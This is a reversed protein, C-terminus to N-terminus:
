KKGAAKGGKKNGQTNPANSPKDNKKGGSTSAKPANDAHSGGAVAVKGGAPATPKPPEPPNHPTPLFGLWKPESITGCMGQPHCLCGCTGCKFPKKHAVIEGVLDNDPTLGAVLERWRVAHKELRSPPPIYLNFLNVDFRGEKICIYEVFTGNKIAELDGDLEDVFDKITDSKELADIVVERVTDAQERELSPAHFTCAFDSDIDENPFGLVCGNSTSWTCVDVFHDIQEQTGSVFAGPPPAEGPNAPIPLIITPPRQGPYAKSWIGKIIAVMAEPGAPTSGAQESVVFAGPKKYDFIANRQRPHWKRTISRRDTAEPRAINRLAHVVIPGSDPNLHKAGRKPPQFSPPLIAPVLFDEREASYARGRDNTNNARRFGDAGLEIGSGTDPADGENGPDVGWFEPSAKRARAKGKLAGHAGKCFGKYYQHRADHGSGKPPFRALYTGERGDTVGDDFFKIADAVAIRAAEESTTEDTEIPDEVPVRAGDNTKSAKKPSDELAADSALRAKSKKNGGRNAAPEEVVATPSTDDTPDGTTLQAADTMVVNNIENTAPNQADLEDDSGYQEVLLIAFANSSVNSANASM